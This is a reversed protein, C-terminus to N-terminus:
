RASRSLHGGIVDPDTSFQMSRDGPVAEMSRRDADFLFVVINDVSYGAKSAVTLTLTTTPHLNM